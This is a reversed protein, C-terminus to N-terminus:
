RYYWHEQDPNAGDDEENEGHEGATQNAHALWEKYTLWKLVTGSGTTDPTGPARYLFQNTPSYETRHVQNLQSPPQQEQRGTKANLMRELYGPMHWREVTRAIHPDGQLVFPVEHDKYTQAKKLDHAYEFVCIGQYISREKVTTTDRPPWSPLIEKALSWAYPYHEPPTDPCNYIDYSEPQQKESSMTTMPQLSYITKDGGKSNRQRLQHVVDLSRKPNLPLLADYEQRLLAYKDSRDGVQPHREPLVYLTNDKLKQVGKVGKLNPPSSKLLRKILAAQEKANMSSSGGSSGPSAVAKVAQVLDRHATWALYSAVLFLSLCTVLTLSSRKKNKNNHFTRKKTSGSPAISLLLRCQQIKKEWPKRSEKLITAWRGVTTTAKSSAPLTSNGGASNNGSSPHMMRRQIMKTPEKRDKQTTSYILLYISLFISLCSPKKSDITQNSQKKAFYLHFLPSNKNNTQQQIVPRSAGCRDGGAWDPRKKM